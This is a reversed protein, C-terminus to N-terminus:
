VSLFSCKNVEIFPKQPVKAASVGDFLAPNTSVIMSEREM